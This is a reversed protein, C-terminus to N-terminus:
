IKPMKKNENGHSWVPNFTEFLMVGSSVCEIWEYMSKPLTGVLTILFISINSLKQQKPANLMSTLPQNYFTLYRSFSQGHVSVSAFNPVESNTNLTCTNVYKQDNFLPNPQRWKIYKQSKVLKYRSSPQNRLSVSCLKPGAYTSLTYLTSRLTLFALDSPKNPTIRIKERYKLTITYRLFM